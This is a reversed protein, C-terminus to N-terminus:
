PAPHKTQDYGLADSREAKPQIRAARQAAWNSKDSNVRFHIRFVVGMTAIGLILGKQILSAM